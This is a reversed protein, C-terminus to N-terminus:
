HLNYKDKLKQLVDSGGQPKYKNKLENLRIEAEPVGAKSLLRATLPKAEQYTQVGVGFAGPVGVTFLADLGWTKIAEDIDQLYLPVALRQVISGATIKEGFATEGEIADAIMSATPSLKGRLFNEVVSLRTEYPFKKPSLEVVEGKSTKRYGSVVQSIVRVWQQFGGWIDWRTNGVRLKGFDTSRSDLEVNVNKGLAIKLLALITVGVGIFEAFSKIAELRVAPKQKAYWVPNLMNFRSAILRPSFLLLNLEEAIKGLKGLDGRGTANNVFKALSKMSAVDNVGEKQLKKALQLFVDVRLKNLFGTYARGSARVYIGILPLKEALDSMFAEERASLGGSVKTPDSIYLEARRILSYDPSNKLDEYWKEFAKPSFAFKFQKFFAGSPRFTIGPKSFAFIVGQRLSASFDLSSVLSKPINIASKVMEYFRTLFPRRGLIAKILTSGFVEELLALQSRQPVVGEFLKYLGHSAAVREYVNLHPTRQVTTFLSDVDTQTLKPRVSEITPKEPVLEGKLKSLGVRFGTEGPINKFVSAVAGARKSREASQLAVIESQAPKAERIAGILKDLPSFAASLSEEMDAFKRRLASAISEQKQLNESFYAMSEQVSSLDVGERTAVRYLDVDAIGVKPALYQAAKANTSPLSKEETKIAQEFTPLFAEKVGSATTAKAVRASIEPVKEPPIHPLEKKIVEEIIKPNTEKVFKTLLSGRPLPLPELMGAALGFTFGIGKAVPEPVGWKKAKETAFKEAIGMFGPTRRYVDIKTEGEKPLISQGTAGAGFLKDIAELGTMVGSFVTNKAASALSSLPPSIGRPKFVTELASGSEPIKPTLGSLATQINDLLGAM